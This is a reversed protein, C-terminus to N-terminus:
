KRCCFCGIGEVRSVDAKSYMKGLRTKLSEETEYPPTFFGKKQYLDRQIEEPLAPFNNKYRSIAVLKEPTYSKM